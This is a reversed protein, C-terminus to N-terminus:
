WDREPSQQTCEHLVHIRVHVILSPHFPFPFFFNHACCGLVPLSVFTSSFVSGHTALLTVAYRQLSVQGLLLIPCLCTHLTSVQTSDLVKIPATCMKCGEEAFFFPFRQYTRVTVPVSFLLPTRPPFYSPVSTFVLAFSFSPNASM